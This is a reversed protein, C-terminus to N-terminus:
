LRKKELVVKDLFLRQRDGREFLDNLLVELKPSITKNQIKMSNGVWVSVKKSFDVTGRGLWITLDEIGYLRATIVNGKITATMTAAMRSGKWPAEENLCRKAITNTSLWYFHNDTSRMTCFEDGMGGGLGDTGLKFQPNARKKRDMWDFIAPMEGSFWEAGRGKYQVYIMPYSRPLWDKMMTYNQKHFEGGHDGCVVYFPLYQGNRWCRQAQFFPAGSMPIVGAFLDPHGLGVDYSMIGGQGLGCLFVRDSDVNFRRRVDRIVNLATKNEEISFRYDAKDNGFGQQWEPAALIYGYKAAYDKCRRIMDLPTDNDDHLLIMVPYSRGHTYEPPLLYVYPSNESRLGPLTTRTEVPAKSLEKEPTFPPLYPIMQAMEDPALANQKDEEYKKLIASRDGEDARTLYDLVFKRAKWLKLAIEPKAEAFTSGMVWGTAAFALLRAESYDPTQGKAKQGEAQRAQTLFVDLRGAPDGEKAPLFDDLGVEDHISRAAEILGVPIPPSVTVKSLTDLYRRTDKLNQAAAEYVGRLTRVEALERESVAADPFAALLRQATQHAGSKRALRIADLTQLARLGKFKARATEVKEKHSPFDKALADLRAEAEPYWGAQVFFNFARFRREAREDESLESKLLVFPAVQLPGASGFALIGQIEAQHSIIEKNKEQFDPHLALLKSVQDPGLESTLYWIRWTYLETADIRAFTPTLGSLHQKLTLANGPRTYPSRFKWTRDWKEDWPGASIEERIIPTKKPDPILIFRESRITDEAPMNKEVVEAVQTPSFLTSRALDNILFFGERLVIPEHSAPDVITKSERKVYGKLLHGDKLLIEDAWAARPLLTSALSVLTLIGFALSRCRAFRSM